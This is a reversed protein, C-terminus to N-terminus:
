SNKKFIVDQWDPRGAIFKDEVAWMSFKECPVPALDTLGIRNKALELHRAETGPVIRDVM